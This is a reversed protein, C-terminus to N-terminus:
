SILLSFYAPFLCLWVPLLVSAFPRFYRFNLLVHSRPVLHASRAHVVVAPDLIVDDTEAGSHVTDVLAFYDISTVLLIASYLVARRQKISGM